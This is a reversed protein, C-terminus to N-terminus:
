STWAERDWSHLPDRRRLSEREQVELLFRKRKEARFSPDRIRFLAPHEEQM